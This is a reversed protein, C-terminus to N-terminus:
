EGGNAGIPREGCPACAIVQPEGTAVDLTVAGVEHGTMM